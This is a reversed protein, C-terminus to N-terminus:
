GEFLDEPAPAPGPIRAVPLAATLGTVELVRRIPASPRVVTRAGAECAEAYRLVLARVGASGCFTVATLDITLLWPRAALVERVTRNLRPCTAQDLEGAVVVTVLGPRSEVVRTTFPAPHVAASTRRSTPPPM